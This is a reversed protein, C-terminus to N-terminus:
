ILVWGTGDSVMIISDYRSNTSVTAFDDILEVGDGAIIMSNPSADMKKFVYTKGVVSAAPPLTLTLSNDTADVKFLRSDRNEISIVASAIVNNIETTASSTSGASVITVLLGNNNGFAAGAEEVFVVDVDHYTGADVVGTITFRVFRGQDSKIQVLITGDIELASTLFAGIDSGNANLDSLFVKTVNAYVANNFVTNGDGPPAVLSTKFTYPTAGATPIPKFTALGGGDTTVVDGDNAGDSVPLKYNDNGMINGAIEGFTVSKMKQIGGAPVGDPVLFKDTNLPM